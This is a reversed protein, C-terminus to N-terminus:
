KEFELKLAEIAKLLFRSRPLSKGHQWRWVTMSTVGLKSAIDERSLNRKKMLTNIEKTVDV